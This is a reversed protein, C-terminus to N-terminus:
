VRSAKLLLNNQLLSSYRLLVVDEDIESLSHTCYNKMKFRHSAWNQKTRDQNKRRWYRSTYFICQSNHVAILYSLSVHQRQLFIQWRYSKRTESLSSLSYAGDWLGQVYLNQPVNFPSSVCALENQKIKGIVRGWDSHFKFYAFFNCTFSLILSGSLCIHRRLM